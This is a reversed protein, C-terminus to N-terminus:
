NNLEIEKWFQNVSVNSELFDVIDNAWYEYKPMDPHGSRFKKKTIEYDIFFPQFCFNNKTEETMKYAKVIQSNMKRNPFHHEIKIMLNIFENDFILEFGNSIINKKLSTNPPVTVYSSGSKKNNLSPSFGISFFKNDPFIECLEEWKFRKSPLNIDIAQSIRSYGSPSKIEMSKIYWYMQYRTTFLDFIYRLFLDDVPKWDNSSICDWNTYDENERQLAKIANNTEIMPSSKGKNIIHRYGYNAISMPNVELFMVGPFRNSKKEEKLSILSTILLGLVGLLTVSLFNSVLKDSARNNWVICSTIIIISSVFIFLGIIKWNM